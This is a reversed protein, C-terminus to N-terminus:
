HEWDGFAFQSANNVCASIRDFVDLVARTRRYECMLIQIKVVAHPDSVKSSTCSLFVKKQRAIEKYKFDTVSLNSSFLEM